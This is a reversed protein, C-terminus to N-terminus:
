NGEIVDILAADTVVKNVENSVENINKIEVGLFKALAQEDVQESSPKRGCLHDICKGLIVATNKCKTDYSHRIWLEDLMMWLLDDINQNAIADRVPKIKGRRRSRKKVTDNSTTIM